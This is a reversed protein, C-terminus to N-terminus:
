LSKVEVNTTKFKIQSNTNYTERADYNIEVWNRARFKSPKIVEDSLSNVIKQHEIKNIYIDLKLDDIVQLRKDSSIYRKKLIKDEIGIAETEILNTELTNQPSNM